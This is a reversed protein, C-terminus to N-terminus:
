LTYILVVVSYSDFLISPFEVVYYILHMFIKTSKDYIDYNLSIQDWLKDSGSPYISYAPLM